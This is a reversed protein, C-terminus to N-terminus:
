TTNYHKILIINDNSIKSNYKINYNILKTQIYVKFFKSPFINSPIFIFYELFLELAKCLLTLNSAAM